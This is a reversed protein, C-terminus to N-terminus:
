GGDDRHAVYREMLSLAGVANSRAIALSTLRPVNWPEDQEVLRIRRNLADLQRKLDAAMEQITQREM